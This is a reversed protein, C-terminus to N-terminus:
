KPFGNVGEVVVSTLDALVSDDEDLMVLEGVVDTVIAVLKVVNASILAESVGFESPCSEDAPDELATPAPTPIVSPVRGRNPKHKSSYRSRARQRPIFFSTFLLALRFLLWTEYGTFISLSAASSSGVCM